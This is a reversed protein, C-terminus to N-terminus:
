PLISCCCCCSYCYSCCCCCCCISHTQTDIDINDQMNIMWKAYWILHVDKVTPGCESHIPQRAMLNKRTVTGIKATMRMGHVGGVRETRCGKQGSCRGDENRVNEKNLVNHFICHSHCTLVCMEIYITQWREIDPM